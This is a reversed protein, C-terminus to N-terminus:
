SLEYEISDKIWLDNKAGYFEMIIKNGEQFINSLKIEDYLRLSEVEKEGDFLVAKQKEGEKAVFGVVGSVIKLGWLLEIKDYLSSKKEQVGNFKIVREKDEDKTTYYVVGHKFGTELAYVLEHQESEMKNKGDFLVVKYNEKNKRIFAVLNNEIGVIWVKDFLESKAENKSLIVVRRKDGERAEFALVEGDRFISHKEIDDYADSIKATKFNIIRVENNEVIAYDRKEKRVKYVGQLNPFIFGVWSNTIVKYWDGFRELELYEYTNREDSIRKNDWDVKWGEILDELRRQESQQILANIDM